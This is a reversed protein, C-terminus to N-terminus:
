VPLIKASRWSMALNVLLNSDGEPLGQERTRQIELLNIGHQNHTVVSYSVMEYRSSLTDVSWSYSPGSYMSLQSRVPYQTFCAISLMLKELITFLM